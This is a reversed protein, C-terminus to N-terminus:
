ARAAAAIRICSFRFVNKGQAMTHPHLCLFSAVTHIAKSGAVGPDDNQDDDQEEAAVSHTPIPVAVAAATVVAAAAIGAAIVTAAAASVWTDSVCHRRVAIM